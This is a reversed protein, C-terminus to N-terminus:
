HISTNNLKIRDSTYFVNICQHHAYLRIITQNQINNSAYQKSFKCLCPKMNYCTYSLLCKIPDDEELDQNMLKRTTYIYIPIELIFFVTSSCDSFILNQGLDSRCGIHGMNFLPCFCTSSIQGGEM